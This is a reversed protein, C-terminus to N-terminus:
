NRKKLWPSNNHLHSVITKRTGSLSVLVSATYDHAHIIDPDYLNLVRKIESVSLKSVPYFNINRETLTDRIQGDPSCYAMEISTDDKFLGIIQCVVNEAGSFRDSNLLHLIRM